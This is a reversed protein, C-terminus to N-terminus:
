EVLEAEAVRLTDDEDVVRSTQEADSIRRSKKALLAESCANKDTGPAVNSTHRRAIPIEKPGDIIGGGLYRRRM